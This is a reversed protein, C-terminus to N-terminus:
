IRGTERGWNVWAAIMRDMKGADAQKIPNVGTLYTLAGFWQRRNTELDRILLPVVADGMLVIAQFSPHQMM